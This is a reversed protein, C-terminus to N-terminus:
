RHGAHPDVAGKAGSADPIMLSPKGLLQLQSDILFQGRTVVEDGSELGELVVLREGVRFGTRIVRPEYIAPWRDAGDKAVAPEQTMVYAIQREGGELVADRPVLLVPGTMTDSGPVHVHGGSTLEVLVDADVFAGPKLLDQENDLDVHVRVIRLTEDLVPDVFSIVGQFVDGPLSPMRVEVTQGIFVAGVDSEFIELVAWVQKLDVVRFLADGTKVYDGTTVRKRIVTGGVNALIDLHERARGEREIADIVAVPLGLLELRRRAAAYVDQANELLTATQGGRQKRAQDRARKASLLEEQASVLEPAYIEAVKEGAAVQTGTFDVYLKDIRGGISATLNGERREDRRIKGLARLRYPALERKVVATRVGAMYRERSNLPVKDGQDVFPEM